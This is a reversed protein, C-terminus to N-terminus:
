KYEKLRCLARVPWVRVWTEDSRYVTPMAAKAEKESSFTTAEGITDTFGELVSYFMDTMTAPTVQDAPNVIMRTGRLVWFTRFEPTIQGPM